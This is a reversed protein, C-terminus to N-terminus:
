FFKCDKTKWYKNVVIPPNIIERSQNQQTIQNNKNIQTPVEKKPPNM